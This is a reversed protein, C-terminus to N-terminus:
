AFPALPSLLRTPVPPRLARPPPPPAARGSALPRPPRRRSRARSVCSLTPAHPPADRGHYLLRPRTHAHPVAARSRRWESSGRAAAAKDAGGQVVVRAAKLGTLGVKGVARSQDKGVMGVGDLVFGPGAAVTRTTM